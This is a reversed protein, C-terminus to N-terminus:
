RTARERKDRLSFIRPTSLLTIPAFTELLTKPLPLMRDKQGKANRVILRKMESVTLYCPLPKAKRQPYLATLDSDCTTICNIFSPWPMKTPRLVQPAYRQLRLEDEFDTLISKTNPWM